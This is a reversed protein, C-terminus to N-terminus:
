NTKSISRKSIIHKDIFDIVIDAMGFEYLNNHGAIPIWNAQKPQNAANFLQVGHKLPIVRDNEGHVILIPMHVQEIKARSNYRDWVMAHAPIFPYREQAIEPLSLFPAELVLGGVPVPIQELLGVSAVEFAMQVAIASGLSEGYLIWDKPYVGRDKLFSLQSRADSYLGLESPKGLNHGYGRYAALLVGLGADLFPKIKLGRKSLNGTNGHFFIVTPQNDYAPRYWFTLALGDPGTVELEQMVPVGAETPSVMTKSPLYILKRQFLYLGSFVALYM